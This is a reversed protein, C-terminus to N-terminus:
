CRCLQVSSCLTCKMELRAPCAGCLTCSREATAIGSGSGRRLCFATVVLAKADQRTAVVCSAARTWQLAMADQEAVAATGHSIDAAELYHRGPCMASVVQLIHMVVM